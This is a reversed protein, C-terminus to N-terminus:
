EILIKNLYSLIDFKILNDVDKIHHKKLSVVVKNYEETKKFFKFQEDKFEEYQNYNFQKEKVTNGNNVELVVYNEYITWGVAKTTANGYAVVILGSFWNAKIFRKNPFIENLVSKYTNEVSSLIQIDEVFLQNDTLKFTAIYERWLGTSVIGIKPLKEPHIKFYPDLPFSLLKYNNGKYIIKDPIQGSAFLNIALGLILIFTFLKKM